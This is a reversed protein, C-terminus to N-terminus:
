PAPRASRRRRWSGSAVAFWAEWLEPVTSSSAVQRHARVDAILNELGREADARSGVM